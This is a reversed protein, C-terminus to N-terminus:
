KERAFLEIDEYVPIETRLKEESHMYYWGWYKGEDLYPPETIVEGDSIQWVEVFTEGNRFTVQHVEDLAHVEFEKYPIEWQENLYNLRKALFYKLYRVNNDYNKYHGPYDDRVDEEQWRIKDLEASKRVWDAYEDIKEDLIREFQPLAQSYCERMKDYFIDDEYLSANWGLTEEESRFSRITSWQYNVCMGEMFGNNIEGMAGDYDWIPGAYILSDGKEKYFYMSTINADCNLSIEDILFRGIFSDIDIYNLYEMDHNMILNEVMQIYDRIYTVQQKSAYKPSKITFTKGSEIIFGSSEKEYYSSLDKEILYGGSLDEENLIEYGKKGNEVFTQAREIKENLKENGKELDYIDVRGEGVMVSETLLYIGAYEGNLFLDIWTCEPTYSLGLVEAMDFVVKTNIKNGERWLPLLNWKKGKDMGFLNEAECLKISYPKKNYKEWSSNGRGSIRELAGYYQVNGNADVICISGKEENEKSKMLYNMDGSETDIFVAPVNESKLCIIDHDQVNGMYGEKKNVFSPLFFYYKNDVVSYWPYIRKKINDAKVTLVPCGNEDKDLLANNERNWIMIGILAITMFVIVLLRKNKM